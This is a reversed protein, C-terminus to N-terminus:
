LPKMNYTNVYLRAICNGQPDCEVWRQGYFDGWESKQITGKNSSEPGGIIKVRAGIKFKAKYNKLECYRCLGSSHLIQNTKCRKCKEKRNEIICGECLSSKLLLEKNNCQLCERKKNEITCDICKGDKYIIQQTNCQSCRILDM